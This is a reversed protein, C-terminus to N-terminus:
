YNELTVTLTGVHVGSTRVGQLDLYLVLGGELTLFELDGDIVRPPLPSIRARIVSSPDEVSALGDSKGDPSTLMYRATTTHTSDFNRVRM